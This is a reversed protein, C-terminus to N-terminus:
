CYIFFLVATTASAEMFFLWAITWGQSLGLLGARRIHGRLMLGSSCAVSLACFVFGAVAPLFPAILSAPLLVLVGIIQLAALNGAYTLRDGKMFLVAAALTLIWGPSCVVLMRFGSLAAAAPITKSVAEGFLWTVLASILAAVLLFALRYNKHYAPACSYRNSCYNKALIVRRNFSLLAYLQLFFGYLPQTSCVKAFRPWRRGLLCLLADLGYLTKGGRLDVLPIENGQRQPDLRSIFEQQSLEAFSIREGSGIIGLQVFANTYAVCLPCESDYIIAKYSVITKM